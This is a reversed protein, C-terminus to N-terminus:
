VIAASTYTFSITEIIVHKGMEDPHNDFDYLWVRLHLTRIDPIKVILTYTHPQGDKLYNITEIYDRKGTEISDQHCLYATIRPNASQDDPFLTASFKLTYIGPRNLTIDFRTSDTGSPDPFSYNEKGPWLNAIRGQELIVEKEILSEMESLIGLVQDYIRILEKPKKIFYYKMTKDMTEKSYGHKEIIQYYSPISDLSSFLYYIKPLILLGDAIHVDTLISVLEKEPILNRHDLKNKRGSCSGAILSFMILILITFRIM